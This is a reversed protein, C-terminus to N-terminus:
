LLWIPTSIGNELDIKDFVQQAFHYIQLICAYKVSELKIPLLVSIKM